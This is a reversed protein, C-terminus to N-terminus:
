FAELHVDFYGVAAFRYSYFIHILFEDGSGSIGDTQIGFGDIDRVNMKSEGPFRKARLDRLYASSIWNESGGRLEARSGNETAEIEEDGIRRCESM